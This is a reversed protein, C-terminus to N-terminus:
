FWGKNNSVCRRSSWDSSKNHLYFLSTANTHASAVEIFRLWCHTAFPLKPFKTRRHKNNEMKDVGPCLRQLPRNIETEKGKNWGRKRKPSGLHNLPYLIWRCHLLHLLCPNWGQTLFIGQFFFHCGVALLRAQVSVTLPTVTWPTVFLWVSSFHSLVHMSKRQRQTHTHTHVYVHM